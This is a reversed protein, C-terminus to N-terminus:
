KQVLSSPDQKIVGFSKSYRMHLQLLEEVVKASWWKVLSCKKTNSVILEFLKAIYLHLEVNSIDFKVPCKPTSTILSLERTGHKLGGCLEIFHSPLTTSQRPQVGVVTYYELVLLSSLKRWEDSSESSNFSDPVDSIIGLLALHEATSYALDGKEHGERGSKKTAATRTTATSSEVALV